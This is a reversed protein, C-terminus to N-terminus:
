TNESQNTSTQAAQKQRERWHEAYEKHYARYEEENARPARVVSGKGVPKCLRSQQHKALSGQTLEKLCIPCHVKIALYKDYYRKVREREHQRHEALQEATMVSLDAM